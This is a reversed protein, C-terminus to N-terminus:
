SLSADRKRQRELALRDVDERRFIRVGSATRLAPVKGARELARINAATCDLLKAAESAILLESM